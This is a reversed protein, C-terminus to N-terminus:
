KGGKTVAVFVDELSPEKTSISSIIGGNEIINSIIKNLDHEVPNYTDIIIRGSKSVEVDKVLPDENIKEIIDDNLNRLIVSLQNLNIFPIDVHEKLVKNGNLDTKIGNEQNLIIDKLNQPTDFADLLGNNIIGIEDCLMDVEYMDHSCLIITRGDDNLDQILKWLIQKTTPDLGITPEDLFLIEPEHVLSAVLSAKQKQGGSLNKIYKDKAYYIDVLEMLDKIKDEKKDKPVGYYDACLEANEKVTLDTYLSVTQPVMGIKERVENPNKIIDFGSVKATGATPAILCTLMKISTTKGAGNPGLFGFISNNKVKMKLSDVAIFDKYKKELDYTEIAYKM